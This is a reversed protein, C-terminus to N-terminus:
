LKNYKHLELHGVRKVLEYNSVIFDEAGELKVNELSGSSIIYDYPDGSLQTINNIGFNLTQNIQLYQYVAKDNLLFVVSPNNIILFNADAPLYNYVYQAFDETETAYYLPDNIKSILVASQLLFLCTLVFIVIRKPAIKLLAAPFFLFLLLHAPFFYRYWGPTKLYWFFTFFIFCLIIIVIESMTKERKVGIILGIVSIILLILFHLPTTETIFRIINSYVLEVFNSDAYSNLYYTITKFIGAVSFEPIITIIWFLIPVSLGACIFFYRKWLVKKLKISKYLEGVAIAPLILLFFPKTAIGLGLFLGALIIRWWHRNKQLFLLGVLFYFLGPVEGLVAKGNGYFPAFSIILALTMIAETKGFMGRVLLYATLVFFFLFLVMPARAATFNMGFLKLSAAVPLLVPYNTTILFSRENVVFDPSVFLSFTGRTVLSQAIGVNIGEDFWTAPSHPLRWLSLFIFIFCLLILIINKKYDVLFKNKIQELM